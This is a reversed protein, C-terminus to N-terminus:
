QKKILIPFTTTYGGAGSVSIYIIYVGASLNNGNNDKGDWTKRCKDKFLFATGGGQNICKPNNQVSKDDIIKHVLNGRKDYVFLNIQQNIQNSAMLTKLSYVITLMKGAGQSYPAPFAYLTNASLSTPLFTFIGIFIFVFIRTHKAFSRRFKSKSEKPLKM